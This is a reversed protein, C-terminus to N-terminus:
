LTDTNNKDFNDESYLNRRLLTKPTKLIEYEIKYLILLNLSELTFVRTYAFM